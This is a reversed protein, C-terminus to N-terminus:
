EVVHQQAEETFEEVSEYINCPLVEICGCSTEITYLLRSYATRFERIGVVRGKALTYGGYVDAHMVYVYANFKFAKNPSKNEM